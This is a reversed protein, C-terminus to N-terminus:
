LIVEVLFYYIQASIQKRVNSVHCALISHINLGIRPFVFTCCNQKCKSFFDSAKIYVIGHMVISQFWDADWYRRHFLRDNCANCQTRALPALLIGTSQNPKGGMAVLKLTHYRLLFFM